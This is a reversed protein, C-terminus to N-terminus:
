GPANAAGPSTQRSRYHVVVRWGSRALAKAIAAGIREAAGTVLAVGPSSRNPQDSMSGLLYSTPPDAPLTSSIRPQSNADSGKRVLLAPM